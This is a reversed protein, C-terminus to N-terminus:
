DKCLYRIEKLLDANEDKLQKLLRPIDMALLLRSTAICLKKSRSELREMLLPYLPLLIEQVKSGRKFRLTELKSMSNTVSCPPSVTCIAVMEEPPPRESPCAFMTEVSEVLPATLFDSPFTCDKMVQIMGNLVVLCSSDISREVLEHESKLSPSTDDASENGAFEATTTPNGDDNQQIMMPRLSTEVVSHWHLSWYLARILEWLAMRRCAVYANSGWYGEGKAARLLVGAIDKIIDLSTFVAPIESEPEGLLPMGFVSCLINGAIALVSQVVHVATDSVVHHKVSNNSTSLQYLPGREVREVVLLLSRRISDSISIGNEDLSSVQQQQQQGDGSPTSSTPCKLWGRAWSLGIDEVCNTISRWAEREQSSGVNVHPLTGELILALHHAKATHATTTPPTELLLYRAAISSSSRNGQAFTSISQMITTSQTSPNQMEKLLSPLVRCICESPVRGNSMLETLIHASESACLQSLKGEQLASFSYRSLLKLVREWASDIGSRMFELISRQTQTIRSYGLKSSGTNLVALGGGGEGQLERKSATVPQQEIQSHNTGSDNQMSVIPTTSPIMLEDLVQLLEEANREGEPNGGFEWDAKARSSNYMSVLCEVLVRSLDTDVKAMCAAVQHFAKWAAQWLETRKISFSSSSFADGLEPNRVPEAEVKDEGCIASHSLDASNVTVDEASEKKSPVQHQLIGGVVSMDPEIDDSLSAVGGLSLVQALTTLGDLVARAVEPSLGELETYRVYCGLSKPWVETAFWSYRPALIRGFSQMVRGLGRLALVASEDWQKRDTDRSHHMLMRVGKKLEPAVATDASSSAAHQSIMVQDIIPFAVNVFYSRWQDGGFKLCNSVTLASFLTHIACNRVEPRRDSALSQLENFMATWSSGMESFYDCVTLLMGVATLSLNVGETQRGFAGIASIIKTVDRHPLWGLFDDIILKLSSFALLLCNGGWPILSPHHHFQAEDEEEEDGLALESFDSALAVGKLTEIVVSWADTLEQGTSQLINDQIKLIAERTKMHPAIAFHPFTSFLRVELPQNFGLPPDAVNNKTSKTANGRPSALPAVDFVNAFRDELPQQSESSSPAKRLQKQQPLPISIPPIKEEFVNLEDKMAAKAEVQQSLANSILEQLSVLAYERLPGRSSNIMLRLCAVVTDWVDGIRWANESFCNITLKMIFSEPGIEHSPKPTVRQAAQPPSSSMGVEVSSLRHLSFSGRVAAGVRSVLSSSTVNPATLPASTPFPGAYTADSALANTCESCLASFASVLSSSSLFSTFKPFRSLAEKAQQVSLRIDFVEKDDVNRNGAPSPADPMSVVVSCATNLYELAEFTKVWLVYNMVNSLMHVLTFFVAMTEWQKSHFYSSYSSSVAAAGMGVGGAPPHSQNFFTFQYLHSFATEFGKENGQSGCALAICGICQTILNRMGPLQVFHNATASTCDLLHPWAMDCLKRHHNSPAEVDDDEGECRKPTLATIQLLPSRNMWELWSFTVGETSEICISAVTHAVSAACHLTALM